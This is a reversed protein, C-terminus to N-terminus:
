RKSGNFNYNKKVTYMVEIVDNKKLGPLKYITFNENSSDNDMFSKITPFDYVITSDKNTIKAKVDSIEIVNIRPILIENNIEKIYGNILSKFHHTEYISVEDSFKSNYYEVYHKSFLGILSSNYDSNVEIQDKSWDLNLYTQSFICGISVSFSFFITLIYKLM